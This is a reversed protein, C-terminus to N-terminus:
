CTSYPSGAAVCQRIKKQLKQQNEGFNNRATIVSGFAGTTTSEINVVESVNQLASELRKTLVNLVQDSTMGSVQSLIITQPLSISPLLEQKLRTIAIVGLVSLIVMLVLTVLRFRLSLRTLLTFFSKM